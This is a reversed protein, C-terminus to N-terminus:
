LIHSVSAIFGQIEELFASERPSTALSMPGQMTNINSVYLLDVEQSKYELSPKVLEPMAM